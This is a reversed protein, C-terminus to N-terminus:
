SKTTMGVSRSLRQLLASLPLILMGLVLNGIAHVIDFPFGAIIWAILQELNLHFM